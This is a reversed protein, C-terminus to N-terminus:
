LILSFQLLPLPLLYGLANLVGSLLAALSILLIYPFMVRGFAVTIEFREDGVFGNAVAWILAPM